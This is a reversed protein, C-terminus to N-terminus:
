RANGAHKDHVHMALCLLKSSIRLGARHAAASNVDFRVRNGIMRLEIIGGRRSFSDFDGVTLAHPAGELIQPLHQIESASIFLIHCDGLHDNWRLHILQLPHGENTAGAIMSGFMPGFPDDGVIGIVLPSMGGPQLSPWVVFKALNQLFAAKIQYEGAVVQARLTASCFIASFALVKATKLLAM